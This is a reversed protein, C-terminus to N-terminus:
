TALHGALRKQELRELQSGNLQLIADCHAGHAHIRRLITHRVLKVLHVIQGASSTADAQDDALRSTHNCVPADGWAAGTDPAGLM